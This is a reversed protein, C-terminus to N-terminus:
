RGAAEIIFSRLPARGRREAALRAERGEVILRAVAVLRVVEPDDHFWATEPWRPRRWDGQQTLV